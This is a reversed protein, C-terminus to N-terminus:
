KGSKNARHAARINMVKATKDAAGRSYRQTMSIDGHTAAQRVHELEAGADTAESIAGARSDMNRVSRPIGCADALIRWHRRFEGAEWPMQSYESIIIPGKAPLASRGASMFNPFQRKLEEIVMQAPALPVELKKQRKSTIHTLIMANDIEEWRLGRLWANNGEYVDVPGAVDSRSVWEGIVDKQRLICEFQFAQALAISPRGVEHAKARILNAQEVTLREERPKGMPFRMRHLVGSLRECEKDELFKAGFNTLIRVMGIYHHAATVKGGAGWREHWRLLMRASIEAIETDGYDREVLSCVKDYHYRSKPRLKRYPSDKDTQYCYILGKLTGDFPQDVLVPGGRGWILMESQLRNCEQVIWDRDFDRLTDPAGSWLRVSKPVFGREVLDTRCQWRAEWGHKRPKWTLGPANEIVPRISM